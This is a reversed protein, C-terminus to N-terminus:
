KVYAIVEEQWRTGIEAVSKEWVSNDQIPVANAYQEVPIRVAVLEEPLEVSSRIPSAYGAALNIQGEDSLIYERAMAAAHPNNGYKNIITAYGSQIAAESPICIDFEINPNNEGIQDRYGLANFDWLFLCAVEGKELRALNGEAMDLRGQEAIQRFYEYGETLDDESGGYALTAALLACQSQTGKTVDSLSVMYDGNLVDEFSTPPEPVLDRNTMIATTGYYGVVWDGDDDKAWDPIEDWYSTKYKATVGTAEAVPGFSQGVDGIDKTANDKEAEFMAIEEASSLDVDTHEFGYLDGLDAWTSGWNAWSDPMGASHVAGEELAKAELEELSYGNLDLTDEKSMKDSSCGTTAMLMTMALIGAKMLKNKM